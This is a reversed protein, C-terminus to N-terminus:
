SKSIFYLSVVVVVLTLLTKRCFQFPPFQWNLDIQISFIATKLKIKQKMEIKVWIEALVIPGSITFRKRKDCKEEFKEFVIESNGNRNNNKIHTVDNKPLGSTCELPLERFM